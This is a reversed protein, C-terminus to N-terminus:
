LQEKWRAKSYKAHTLFRLVYVMSWKYQIAVVLRYRNGCINFVTVIRGSSVMVADAHSYATRVDRISKWDAHGTVKLWAALSTASDPHAAMFERVCAPKM